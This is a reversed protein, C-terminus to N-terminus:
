YITCKVLQKICTGRKKRIHQSTAKKVYHLTAYHLTAFIHTFYQLKNNQNFHPEHNVFLHLITICDRHEAYNRDLPLVYLCYDSIAYISGNEHAHLTYKITKPKIQPICM